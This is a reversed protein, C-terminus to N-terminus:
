SLQSASATVHKERRRLPAGPEAAGPWPGQTPPLGWPESVSLLFYKPSGQTGRTLRADRVAGEWAHNGQLAHRQPPSPWEGVLTLFGRGYQPHRRTSGASPGQLIALLKTRVSKGNAHHTPFLVSASQGQKLM